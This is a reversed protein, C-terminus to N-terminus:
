AQKNRQTLLPFPTGRSIKFIKIPRLFGNVKDINHSKIAIKDLREPFNLIGVGSFKTPLPNTCEVPTAGSRQFHMRTKAFM